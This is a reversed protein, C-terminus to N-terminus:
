PSRDRRGAPAPIAGAKSNARSAPLRASQSYEAGAATGAEASLVLGRGRDPSTAFSSSSSFFFSFSFSFPPAGFITDDGGVVVVVADVAVVGEWASGVMEVGRRRVRCCRRREEGVVCDGSCIM